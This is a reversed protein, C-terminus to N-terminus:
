RRWAGTLFDIGDGPPLDTQELIRARLGPDRMAAARQAQPLHEIEKYAPRLMFNHYGDLTLMMGFGRAAIHASIHLGQANAKATEALMARWDDPDDDFQPLLYHVPRGSTRALMEFLRHEAIRADRGIFESMGAGGAAGRAVIQFYGRGSEGMARGLAEIEEHEAYTGPVVSFDTGYFHQEFRGTSIGMAGAAMGQRVADAMFAVEEVTARDHTVAREGMAYVRLPAHPMLMGIDVGYNRRGLFDMYEPFSEWTFPVGEKLVIGPIAEVGEMVAIMLDQDGPRVPAFGVGCNGGISTTIGNSFSPDITTDWTVQGDYHTHLDIFGPTVIAGDADIRRAAGGTIRGGLEAIRGDKIAIDGTRAPGGTGDIIKGGTIVTDFM